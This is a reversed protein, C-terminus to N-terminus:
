YGMRFAVVGAAFVIGIGLIGGANQISRPKVVFKVIELIEVSFKTKCIHKGSNSISCINAIFFM